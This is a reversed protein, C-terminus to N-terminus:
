KSPPNCTIKLKLIGGVDWLQADEVISLIIHWLSLLLSGKALVRRVNTNLRQCINIEIKFIYLKSAM